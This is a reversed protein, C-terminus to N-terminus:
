EMKYNMPSLCLHRFLHATQFCSAVASPPIISKKLLKRKVPLIDNSNVETNIVKNLTDYHLYLQIQTANKLSIM